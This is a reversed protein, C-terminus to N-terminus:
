FFTIRLTPPPPQTAPPPQPHTTKTLSLSRDSGILLIMYINTATVVNKNFLISALYKLIHDYIPLNTSNFFIEGYRQKESYQM